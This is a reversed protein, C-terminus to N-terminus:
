TTEAPPEPKPEPAEAPQAPAPDAPQAPAVPAPDAPNPEAPQAPVPEAPQAPAPDAPQVPAAPAPDAPKPEPAEVRAAPALAAPQAPAAQAEATAPPKAAAKGEDPKKARIAQRAKETPSLVVSMARGEMRFDREVKAVDALLEKVSNLVDRGRDRHAMERGRFRLTFQVRDGRSLFTRARNVKIELDHPGIKPTRIRIEKLETEHRHGKAEHDKKKQEYMWKGYDMIRCVPPAASPAVEVLDLGSQRARQLAERTEVVGVQEGDADILRIPTVRIRENRRIEKAIEVNRSEHQERRQGAWRPGVM